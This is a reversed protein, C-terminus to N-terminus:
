HHKRRIVRTGPPSLFLVDQARRQNAERAYGNPQHWDQVVWGAEILAPYEDAYGAVVARAGHRKNLCWDTVQENLPRDEAYLGKARATRATQAYPPDLFVGVNIYPPKWRQIIAETCARKWGEPWDGALLIVGSLRAAVAAIREDTM